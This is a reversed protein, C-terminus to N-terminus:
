IRSFIKKNIDSILKISTEIDWKHYNANYRDSYNCIVLGLNLNIKMKHDNSNINDVNSKFIDNVIKLRKWNTELSLKNNSNNNFNNNFYDKEKIPFYINFNIINDKNNYITKSLEEYIEYNDSNKDFFLELSSLIENYNKQFLFSKIKELVQWVVETYTSFAISYTSEQKQEFPDKKMHFLNINVCKYWNSNVYDDISIIDALERTKWTWLRWWFFAKHWKNRLLEIFAHSRIDELKLEKHYNIDDLTKWLFTTNFYWKKVKWLKDCPLSINFIKKWNLQFQHWNLDHTKSIIWYNVTSIKRDKYNKIITNISDINFNFSSLKFINISIKHWLKQANWKKPTSINILYDNKPLDENLATLYLDSTTVEPNNYDDVIWWTTSPIYLYKKAFGSRIWNLFVDCNIKKSWQFCELIFEDTLEWDINKDNRNKLYCFEWKIDQFFREKFYQPYIWTIKYHGNIIDSWEWEFNLEIILEKNENYSYTFYPYNEKNEYNKKNNIVYVPLWAFNNHSNTTKLWDITELFKWLENFIKINIKNRSYLFGYLRYKDSDNDNNFSLNFDTSIKVSDLLWYSILKKFNIDNSINKWDKIKWIIESHNWLMSLPFHIWLERISEKSKINQINESLLDIIKPIITHIEIKKYWLKNLKLFSESLFDEWIDTFIIIKWNIESVCIYRYFRAVFDDFISQINWNWNYKISPYEIELFPTWYTKWISIEDSYILDSLNLILSSNFNDFETSIITKIVNYSDIQDWNLNEFIFFSSYVKNLFRINFEKKELDSLKLFKESTHLMWKKITKKM